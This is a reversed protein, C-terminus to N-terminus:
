NISIGAEQSQVILIVVEPWLDQINCGQSPYTGRMYLVFVGHHYNQQCFSGEM